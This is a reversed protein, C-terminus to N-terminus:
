RHGASRHPHGAGPAGLDTRRTAGDIGARGMGAGFLIMGFFWTYIQALALNKSFLRRGRLLPVLWYAIGFYTLTVAGALTMHFHGVVWTTNHLAVNLAFSANLIGTIGGVIFLLMGCLQAAVLPNNWPQKWVWSLQNGGRNRGAKELTAALNFATLLSPAAVVFTLLSHSVKALESVGPDVFLHHV